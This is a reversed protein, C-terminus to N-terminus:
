IYESRIRNALDELAECGKELENGSYVQTLHSEIASMLLVTIVSPNGTSSFSAVDNLNDRQVFLAAGDEIKKRKNNPLNLITKANSINFYNCIFSLAIMLPAEENMRASDMCSFDFTNAINYIFWFARASDEKPSISKERLRNRIMTIICQDFAESSGILDYHLRNDNKMFGFFACEHKNQSNHNILDDMMDLYLNQFNKLNFMSRNKFSDFENAKSNPNNNISSM